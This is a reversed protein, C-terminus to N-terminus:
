ELPAHALGALGQTFYVAEKFGVMADDDRQPHPLSQIVDRSHQSSSKHRLDLEIRVPALSLFRNNNGEVNTPEGFEAAM